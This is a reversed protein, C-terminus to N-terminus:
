IYCGNGMRPVCGSAKARRGLPRLVLVISSKSAPSLPCEDAAVRTRKEERATEERDRLRICAQM